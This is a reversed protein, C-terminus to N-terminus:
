GGAIANLCLLSNGGFDVGQIKQGLSTYVADDTCYFGNKSAMQKCKQSLGPNVGKIKKGRSDYVANDTCLFAKPPILPIGRDVFIQGADFELDITQALVNSIILNIVSLLIFSTKKILDLSKNKREM